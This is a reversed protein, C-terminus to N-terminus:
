ALSKIIMVLHALSKSNLEAFCQKMREQYHLEHEFYRSFRSIEMVFIESLAEKSNIYAEAGRGSAQMEATKTVLIFKVLMGFTILTQIYHFIDPVGAPPKSIVYHYLYITILHDM